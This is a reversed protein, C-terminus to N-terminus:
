QAFKYDEECRPVKQKSMPNINQIVTPDANQFYTDRTEDSMGFYLMDAECDEDTLRKEDLSNKEELLACNYSKDGDTIITWFTLLPKDDANVVNTQSPYATGYYLASDAVFINDVNLQVM